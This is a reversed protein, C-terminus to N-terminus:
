SHPLCHHYVTVLANRPSRCADIERSLVMERTAAIGSPYLVGLFLWSDSSRSLLLIGASFSSSLLFGTLPPTLYRTDLYDRSEGISLSLSLVFSLSLSFSFSVLVLDDFTVPLTLRCIAVFSNLSSQGNM